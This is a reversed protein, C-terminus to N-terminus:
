NGWGLQEMNDINGFGIFLQPTQVKNIRNAEIAVQTRVDDITNQFTNNGRNEKLNKLLYYTFLGHQKERFVASSEQGSSSTLVVLKSPVNNVTAKVKVGKMAVLEKNRGGGSFCADLIITCKKTEHLSLLRYLENLPYGNTVQNGNVDVPILYPEKTIEDPLGHGSYYFLLEAEGNGLEAFRVLKTVEQSMMGKTADKIVVINEKPYGLTKEAYEAMVAADNRAFDVNVEADVGTQYKTYDENGVILAYRKAEKPLGLPIDKDVDSHLSAEQIVKTTNSNSSANSVISITNGSSQSNINAEVNKDQAYRGYKESIDIKIPVSPSKYLKDLVFDFVIQTSEGSSLRDLNFNAQSTAFANQSPLVFNIKIDEADGQGVNQVIAKLQIPYGLKITGIDSLFQYDTIKIDPNEFKKTSVKINIPDPFFQNQETFSIEIIAEGTKLDLSGSFPISIAKETKPQIQGILQSTRFEIGMNNKEAVTAQLNLANGKGKNEVIFNISCKEIGDLRNNQNGDQFKIDKITLIPPEIKQNSNANKAKAEECQELQRPMDQLLPHGPNKIRTKLLEYSEIADEPKGNLHQAKALLALAEVPALEEDADYPDYNKSFKGSGTAIELHKLADKKDKTELLCMGLKYHYNANHPKKVLLKRWETVAQDWLKEEILRNAEDFNAPTEPQAFVPIAMNLWVIVGVFVKKFFDM